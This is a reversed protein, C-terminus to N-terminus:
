CVRALSGPGQERALADVVRADVLDGVLGVDAKAGEVVV